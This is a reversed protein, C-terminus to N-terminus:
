ASLFSARSFEGFCGCIKLTVVEWGVEDKTVTLVSVEGKLRNRGEAFDAFIAFIVYCDHFIRIWVFSSLQIAALIILILFFIICVAASIPIAHSSAPSM